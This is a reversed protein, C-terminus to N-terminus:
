DTAPRSDRATVRTARRAHRRSNWRHLGWSHSISPGTTYGIVAGGLAGIPGLVLAGSVAGMAADDAREGALAVSPMLGFALAVSVITYRM